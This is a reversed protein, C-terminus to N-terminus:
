ENDNIIIVKRNEGVEKLDKKQIEILQHVIEFIEKAVYIPTKNIKMKGNNDYDYDWCHSCDFGIWFLKEGKENTVARRGDGYDIFTIGGHCSIDNDIDFNNYGCHEPTLAVYGCLSEIYLNNQHLILCDYGLYKFSLSSFNNNLSIVTLISDQIEINEM